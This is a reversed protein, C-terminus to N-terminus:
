IWCMDLVHRCVSLSVSTLASVLSWNYLYAKFTTENVSTKELIIYLNIYNISRVFSLDSQLVQVRKNFTDAVYLLEDKGFHLGMPFNFQLEGSGSEGVSTIFKGDLTAKVIKNTGASVIYMINKAKDVGIGRPNKVNLKDAPITRAIEGKDNYVVISGDDFTVYINGEDDAYLYAPDPKTPVTVIPEKIKSYDCVKISYPSDKINDNYLQVHLLYSGESTPPAVIM